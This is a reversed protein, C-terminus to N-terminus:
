LRQGSREAGGGTNMLYSYGEWVRVWIPLCTLVVGTQSHITLTPVDIECVSYRSVYVEEQGEAIGQGYSQVSKGVLLQVLKQLQLRLTRKHTWQVDLSTCPQVYPHM